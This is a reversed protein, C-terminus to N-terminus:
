YVSVKHGSAKAKSKSGSLAQGSGNWFFLRTELLATHRYLRLPVSDGPNM